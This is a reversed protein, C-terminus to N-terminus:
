LREKEWYYIPLENGSDWTDCYHGDVVAIVHTAFALIYIGNPHDKCFERTTYCDPCTDPLFHRKFGKRKLYGGWVDNTSPMKKDLFGQIAVGLYTKDWGDGTATAIARITCDGTLIGFPNENMQEWM